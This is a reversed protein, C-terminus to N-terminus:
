PGDEQENLRRTWRVLYAMGSAFTSAATAAILITTALEIDLGLGLKALVAAALAIQLTTNLKSVFMPESKFAGTIAMVVVAGGVIFVDRFVVMITLWLPLHGTWGLVVFVSVLLAKDALPDLYSGLETEWGFRKALFGDLADTLGAAVFLWFAPAFDGDIMLWVALPVAMLRAFSLINPLNFM